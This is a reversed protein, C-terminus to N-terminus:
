SEHEIDKDDRSAEASGIITLCKRPISQLFAEDTLPILIKSRKKTIRPDRRRLMRVEDFYRTSSEVSESVLSVAGLAGVVPAAVAGVLGKGFGSFFGQVGDKKAGKYPRSVLGSLGQM